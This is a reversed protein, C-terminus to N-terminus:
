SCSGLPQEECEVDQLEIVEVKSGRRGCHISSPVHPDEFPGCGAGCVEPCPVGQPSWSHAPPPRVAVTVSASATVTTVPQCYGTTAFAPHQAHHSRTGRPGARDRSGPSPGEASVEFADRRPRYPPPRSGGAPSEKWPQQGPRGPPAKADQHPQQQPSWLPRRRTRPPVVQPTQPLNTCTSGVKGGQSREQRAVWVCSKGGLHAAPGCIAPLPGPLWCPRLGCFFFRGKSFREVHCLCAKSPGWRPKEAVAPQVCVSSGVFAPSHGCGGAAWCGGQRAALDGARGRGSSPAGPGPWGWPLVVASGVTGVISLVATM